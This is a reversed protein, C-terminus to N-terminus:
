LYSAVILILGYNIVGIDHFGQGVALVLTIGIVAGFLTIYSAATTRGTRNALYAVAMLAFLAGLAALSPYNGRAGTIAGSALVIGIITLIVIHLFKAVRNKEDDDFQPPSLLKLFDQRM